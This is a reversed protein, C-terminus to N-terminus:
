LCVEHAIEGIEAVAIRFDCIEAHTVESRQYDTFSCIMQTKEHQLIKSKLAPSIPVVTDLAAIFDTFTHNDPLKNHYDLIAMAYCELAMATINYLLSTDFKAPKNSPGGTIRQYQDGSKLWEKWNAM